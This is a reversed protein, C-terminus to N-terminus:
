ADGGCNRHRLVGSAAWPVWHRRYHDCGTGACGQGRPSGGGDDWHKLHCGGCRWSPAHGFGYADPSWRNSCQLARWLASVEPSCGLRRHWIGGHRLIRDTTRPVVRCGGGHSRVCEFAGQGMSYQVSQFRIDQRHDRGSRRDARHGFAINDALIGFVARTEGESRPFGRLGIVAAFRIVTPESVGAAEALAALTMDVTKEPGALITEAVKRDSKRLNPLSRAIVELLNGEVAAMRAQEM